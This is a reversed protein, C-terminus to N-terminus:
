PKKRKRTWTLGIGVLIICMATISTPLPLESFIFYGLISSFIPESLILTSLITPSIYKVSYNLSGHGMIQPGIALALGLMLLKSDINLSGLDQTLLLIVVCTLAAYSYVPFTYGLWSRNQRVKRGILFYIAFIVAASFALTNGLAPNPFSEESGIDFYGLMLTGLFAICVGLWVMPRFKIKMLTREAVILIIPHITVLVSASAISTYYVSSVWLTFHLGLSIGAVAVLLHERKTVITGLVLDKKKQSFYFPVLIICAIVTRLTTLVIPSYDAAFRVIIPAFSFTAMGLILGGYVRWKSFDAQLPVTTM